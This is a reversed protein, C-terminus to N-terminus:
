EFLHVHDEERFHLAFHAMDESSLEVCEGAVLNKGGPLMMNVKSKVKKSKLIAQAPVEAQEVDVQAEAQEMVEPAVEKAKKAM